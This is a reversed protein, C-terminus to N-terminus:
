VGITATDLNRARQRELRTQQQEVLRRGAHVRGLRGFHLPQDGFQLGLSQRDQQNLVLEIHHHAEGVTDDDHVFALLDGFACAFLHPVVGPDYLRIETVSQRLGAAARSVAAHVAFGGGEPGSNRSDLM